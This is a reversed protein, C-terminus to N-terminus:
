ADDQENWKELRDMVAEMFGEVLDIKEKRLRGEALFHGVGASETEALILYYWEKEGKIKKGADDTTTEAPNRTRLVHFALNAPDLTSRSPRM